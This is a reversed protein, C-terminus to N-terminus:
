GIAVFALISGLTYVAFGSRWTGTSVYDLEGEERNERKARETAQAQARKQLLTGLSDCSSGLFALIIGVVNMRNKTTLKKPRSSIYGKAAMSVLLGPEIELSIEASQM